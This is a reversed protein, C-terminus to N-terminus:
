YAMAYCERRADAGAFRNGTAPDIMVATACGSVGYQDITTVDHGRKKLEDFVETPIPKEINMRNLGARHPSVSGYYHMTQVRQWAFATHLNPYWDDWFEVVDLFAQLITQEQNDGGPTGIAMFPKGDKLVLSPTLTYRPRARPEVHNARQPDLFFQEGRSSMQIGTDGLVVCGSIWGGSSTTDFMNGDKDIVSMHTTDKPIGASALLLPMPTIRSAENAEENARWFPWTKVKSDFAMPDGAVLMKSAHLPDIQAAREKAYSKSLLGEAPSKVFTQDAYYTDRDAYSLKMAEILTHIYDPSDHGM